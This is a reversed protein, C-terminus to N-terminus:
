IRIGQDWQTTSIAPSKHVVGNKDACSIVFYGSMPRSSATGGVDSPKQVTVTSSITGVPYVTATTFSYGNIRKKLKITYVYKKASSTSTTVLGAADYITRSVSIDSDVRTPYNFFAILSLRMETASLNCAIAGSLWATSELPSKLSLKFTGTGPNVITLTWTEAVNSQEVKLSQVAKAAMPHSESGPKEFEVSVTSFYDGGTDKHQGRLKYFKGAELDIWNTVFNGQSNNPNEKHNYYRWGKFWGQYGIEVLTTM